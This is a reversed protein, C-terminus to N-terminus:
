DEGVEESHSPKLDEEFIPIVVFIKRDDLFRYGDIMAKLERGTMLGTRFEVANLWSNRISKPIIVGKSNGIDVLKRMPRLRSWLRYLLSGLDLNM